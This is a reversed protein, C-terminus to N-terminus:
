QTLGGSVATSGCVTYYHTAKKALLLGRIGRLARQSVIKHWSEFFCSALAKPNLRRQDSNARYQWRSSLVEWHHRHIIACYLVPLSTCLYGLSVVQMAVERDQGWVM